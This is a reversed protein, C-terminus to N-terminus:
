SRVSAPRALVTVELAQRISERMAQFAPLAAAEPENSSFNAIAAAVKFGVAGAHQDDRQPVDVRHNASPELAIVEGALSATRAIFPNSTKFM